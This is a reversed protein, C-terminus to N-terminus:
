GQKALWPLRAVLDVVPPVRDSAVKAWAVHPMGQGVNVLRFGQEAILGRM